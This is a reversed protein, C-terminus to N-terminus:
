KSIDLDVLFQYHNSMLEDIDKLLGRAGVNSSRSYDYYICNCDNKKESKACIEVCERAHTLLTYLTNCYDQLRKENENSEIPDNDLCIKVTFNSIGNCKSLANKLTEICCSGDGITISRQKKAM